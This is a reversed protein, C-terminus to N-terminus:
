LLRSSRTCIIGHQEQLTKLGLLSCNQTLGRNGIVMGDQGDMPTRLARDGPKGTSLDIWGSDDGELYGPAKPPPVASKPSYEALGELRRGLERAGAHALLGNRGTHYADAWLKYSTRETVLRGELLEDLTEHFYLLSTADFAAHNTWYVFGASGPESEIDLVAAKFLAGPGKQADCLDLKPDEAWVSVLEEPTVVSVLGERVFTDLAKETPRIIAQSVSNASTPYWM